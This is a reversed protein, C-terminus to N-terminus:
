EVSIWTRKESSELIARILRSVKWGDYFTPSCEKDSEIAELFDRMQNTVSDVYGTGMGPTSFLLSSGYRHAPGFYITRFGQVEKPDRGDYYDLENPREMTFALSGESGHVEFGLDVKRGPAVWSASVEAITGGDLRLIASTQDDVDSRAKVKEGPPYREPILNSVMGSVEKPEGVLFRVMDLSHSGLDALAGAGAQAKKFRWTLPFAPGGWEEMFRSKIYHVKGLRGDQIMQRALTVAPVRRYNFGVLTKARSRKSVEYMELADAENSALPKECIVHKGAELAAIASEKHLYTPTLVDVIEVNADSVVTRWDSTWRPIGLKAAAASALEETAEAVVGIQGTIQSGYFLPISSFGIAHSRAVQGGGILGVTHKAL